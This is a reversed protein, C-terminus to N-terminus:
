KLTIKTKKMKKRKSFRYITYAVIILLLLWPFTCEPRNALYKDPNLLNQVNINNNANLPANNNSPPANIPPQNTPPANEFLTTGTRDGSEADNGSRDTQYVNFHYLSGSKLKSILVRHFRTFGDSEIVEGGEYATSPGFKIGGTAPKDTTWLVVFSHATRDAIEINSIVPPITDFTTFSRDDSISQNGNEDVAIIRFHYPTRPSLNGMLAGHSTGILANEVISGYSTTPGFEVRSFAPKDTNWLVRAETGTIYDMRINSIVPPMLNNGKLTVFTQDSSIGVMGFIDMSRAKVHYELGPILNELTVSHGLSFGSSGTINGYNNTPGYLVYGNAATDTTWSVRATSTTIEDIVLNSVAPHQIYGSGGTNGPPAPPPPPPPPPPAGGVGASLFIADDKVIAVPAVGANGATGGIALQYSGSLAPNVIQHVGVGSSIANTGVAIAVADGAAIAGGNGPCITFTLGQGAWAVGVQEPGSCDGATTLQAGNDAIDVDNVDLGGVNFGAAWDISLTQGEAVGDTAVFSIAHDAPMSATVLTMTDSAATIKSANALNAAFIFFIVPFINALRKAITGSTKNGISEARM